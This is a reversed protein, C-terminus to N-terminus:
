PKYFHLGFEILDTYAIRLEMETPMYPFPIPIQLEKKPIPPLIEMNNKHKM